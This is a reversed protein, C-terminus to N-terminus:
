RAAPEKPLHRFSASAEYVARHMRNIGGLPRHEQVGHWPSFILSECAARRGPSDFDQPPITITAVTVFPHESEPWETSANEIDARRGLRQDHRRQVQFKFVVAPCWRAGRSTRDPREALLEPGADPQPRPLHQQEYREGLYSKKVIYDATRPKGDKVFGIPLSDPNRQSDKAHPIFRLREMNKDSRLLEFGDPQELALFWDYPILQSGQSTYYFQIREDASWGQDLYIVKGAAPPVDEVGYAIGSCAVLYWSLMAMQRSM